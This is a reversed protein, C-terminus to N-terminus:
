SVWCIARLIVHPRQAFSIPDFAGGAKGGGYAGAGEMNQNQVLHTTCRSSEHIVYISWTISLWVFHKINNIIYQNSCNGGLNKIWFGSDYKFWPM